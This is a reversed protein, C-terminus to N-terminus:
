LKAGKVANPSWNKFFSMVKKKNYSEGEELYNSDQTHLVKGKADLVVFVPFGFRVPNGLRRLMKQTQEKQAGELKKRPNYNVHIYVFNEEVMKKIEGDKTIFDAFKLCWPCWNGGLQAIVFKGEKASTALAKEIQEVPNIEENYVRPLGSQAYSVGCSLLAFLALALIKKMYPIKFINQIRHPLIALIALKRVKFVM